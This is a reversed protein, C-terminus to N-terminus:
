ALLRAFFFGLLNYMMNSCRVCTTSVHWMVGSFAMCFRASWSWWPSSVVMMSIFGLFFAAFGHASCSVSQLVRWTSPASPCVLADVCPHAALRCFRYEVAVFWVVAECVLPLCELRPSGCFSRWLSPSPKPPPACVWMCVCVCTHVHALFAVAVFCQYCFM